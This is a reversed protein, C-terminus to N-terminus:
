AEAVLEFVDLLHVDLDVVHQAVDHLDGGGGLHHAIQGDEHYLVAQGGLIDHRPPLGEGEGIGHDTVELAHHALGGPAERFIQM